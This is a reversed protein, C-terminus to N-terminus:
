PRDLETKVARAVRIAAEDTAETLAFFHPEDLVAVVTYDLHCGACTGVLWRGHALWTGAEIQVWDGVTSPTLSGSIVPLLNTAEQLTTPEARIGLHQDHGSEDRFACANNWWVWGSMAPHGPAIEGWHRMQPYRESVQPASQTARLIVSCADIKSTESLHPWPRVRLEFVIADALRKTAGPPATVVFFYPESVVAMAQGIGSACTGGESIWMETWADGSCPVFKGVVLRDGLDVSTLGALLGSVEWAATPASRFLLWPGGQTAGDGYGCATWSGTLLSPLKIPSAKASAAVVGTSRAAATLVGCSDVAAVQTQRSSGVLAAIGVALTLVVVVAVTWGAVHVGGRPAARAPLPLVSEPMAILGDIRQMTRAVTRCTDCSAIHRTVQDKQDLDIGDDMAAILEIPHATV